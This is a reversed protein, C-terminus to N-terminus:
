GRLWQLGAGPVSEPVVAMLEHRLEAAAELMAAITDVLDDDTGEAFLGHLVLLSSRQDFGIALGPRAERYNLALARRLTSERCDAKQDLHMLEVRLSLADEGARAVVLVRGESFELACQGADDFALAQGLTRGLATLWGNQRNMLNGTVTPGRQAGYFADNSAM